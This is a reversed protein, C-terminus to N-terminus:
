KVETGPEARSLVLSQQHDQPFFARPDLGREAIGGRIGGEYDGNAIQGTQGNAIIFHRRALRDVEKRGYGLLPRIYSCGTRDQFSQAEDRSLMPVRDDMRTGDAVVPYDHCVMEMAQRHVHQIADNPYGCTIVMEVVKELFGEEFIRRKWPLGTARAANEVAHTEDRASFVFTNLEVEYDRSLLLAALASDKGGSFLVGAKM